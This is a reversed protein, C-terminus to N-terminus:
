VVPQCNYESAYNYIPQMDTENQMPAHDDTKFLVKGALLENLEDFFACTKRPRDAIRNNLFCTKYARRMNRWKQECHTANFSYGHMAM